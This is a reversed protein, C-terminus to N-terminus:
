VLPSDSDSCHGYDHVGNLYRNYVDIVFRQDYPRDERERYRYCKAAVTFMVLGIFAIICIYLFYGFLCGTHPLQHGNTQFKHSIFPVLAVSSIFQYVGTIAFYTGLLLGKMTHPSQASIFEFITVTVLPPGIGILVTSPILTAWHMGLSSIDVYSVGSLYLVICQTDNRQYQIHGITDAFFISLGGIFYILIGFGLRWFIKPVRKYCLIFNMWSYIPLFLTSVIYRLLGTNVIMWSWECVPPDIPGLHVGMFTFLFASTSTDLIFIPGIALLVLVIRFFTKIDEVQETTFPGGFREKAFDLRSPREDDCYTFASRQLAYSHKTAFNLVKIIMKCPNHHGAPESYFWHRKWCGIILLLALLVLEFMLVLSSASTLLVVLTTDYCVDIYVFMFLILVSVLDYCWKAWHVFLAQHHSPAELLQDLGFQIFNAGFGAIGIVAVLACVLGASGLFIGFHTLNFLLYLACFIVCFILTFLLLALSGAIIRFRGCYVDAFYGSLPYFIYVLAFSAYYVVIGSPIDTSPLIVGTLLILLAINSLIFHLIGVFVAWSLVLIAAKPLPCFRVLHSHVFLAAVKRWSTPENESFSSLLSQSELPRQEDTYFLRKTICRRSM